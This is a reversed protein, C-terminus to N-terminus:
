PTPPTAAPAATASRDQTFAYIHKRIAGILQDASRTLLPTPDTASAASVVGPTACLLAAILLTSLTKM